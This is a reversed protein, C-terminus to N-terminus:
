VSVLPQPSSGRPRPSQCGVHPQVPSNSQPNKILGPRPFHPFIVGFGTSFLQNITPKGLKRHKKGTRLSHLSLKGSPISTGNIKGHFYIPPDPKMKGKFWDMSWSALSIQSMTTTKKKNPSHHFTNQSYTDYKGDMLTPKIQIRM